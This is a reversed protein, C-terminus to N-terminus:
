DNLLLGLLLGMRMIRRGVFYTFPVCFWATEYVGRPLLFYGECFRFALKFHGFSPSVLRGASGIKGTGGTRCSFGSFCTFRFLLYVQFGNGTRLGALLGSFCAQLRWSALGM